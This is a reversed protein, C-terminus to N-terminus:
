SMTLDRENEYILKFQVLLELTGVHTEVPKPVPIVPVPTVPVAANPTRALTLIPVNPIFDLDVVFM